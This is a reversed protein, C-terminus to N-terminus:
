SSENLKPREYHPHFCRQDLLQLKRNVLVSMRPIGADRYVRPINIETPPKRVFLHKDTLFYSVYVHRVSSYHVLWVFRVHSVTPKEACVCFVCLRKGAELASAAVGWFKHMPLHRKFAEARRVAQYAPHM